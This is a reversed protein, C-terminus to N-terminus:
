IIEKSNNEKATNEKSTNEKSKIEKSKNEKSKIEVKQSRRGLELESGSGLVPRQTKSYSTDSPRQIPRIKLDDSLSGVREYGSIVQFLRSIITLYRRPEWENM